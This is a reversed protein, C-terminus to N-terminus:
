HQLVVPKGPEWNDISEKINAWYRLRVTERKAAEVDDERFARELAEVTDRIRAENERRLPELEAEAEAGEIAERTELVEMLLDPDPRAAAAAEDGALDVGFRTQLLHQARLLPSSLTRYAANIHASVAEARRRAASYQARPDASHPLSPSSAASAAQHHFDPHAAAQLQLFERRLARTDIHFPGAPPPGQPLTQPFLAYYSPPSPPVQTRIEAQEATKGATSQAGDSAGDSQPETTATQAAASSRLAPRTSSMWRRQPTGLTAASPHSHFESPLTRRRTEASFERASRAIRSAPARLTTSALIAERACAACLGALGRRTSSVVPATSM